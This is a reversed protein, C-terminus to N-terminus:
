NELQATKPLWRNDFGFEELLQYQEELESKEQFGPILGHITPSYFILATTLAVLLLVVVGIGVIMTLPKVSFNRSQSLSEKDYMVVQYKKTANASLRAWREKLM